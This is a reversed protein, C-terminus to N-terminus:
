LGCISYTKSRDCIYYFKGTKITDPIGLIRLGRNDIYRKFTQLTQQSAALWTGSMSIVDDVQSQVGRVDQVLVSM